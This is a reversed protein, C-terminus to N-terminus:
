AGRVFRELPSGRRVASPHGNFLAGPPACRYGAPGVTAAFWDYDLGDHLEAVIADIRGAYEPLANLVQKEGGEIDLKLLDCSALGAIDLISGITLARVTARGNQSVHHAWSEGDRDFSVEGDREWVAGQLLTSRQEVGLSQAQATLLAFSDADPEVGVYRELAGNGNRLVWALFMGVNAGCDVVTKFPWGGVFEYERNHFLEWVVPIDTTGPRYLVPRDLGRLNLNGHPADPSRGNHSGKLALFTALDRSIGLSWLNNAIRKHTSM